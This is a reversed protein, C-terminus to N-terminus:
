ITEDAEFPKLKMEKDANKELQQVKLEAESLKGRCLTVLRSGEEYKALLTELPLDDAEMAEVIGELKKLAEEFPLQNAPNNGAAKSPSAMYAITSCFLPGTWLPNGRGSFCGPATACGLDVTLPNVKQGTDTQKQDANWLKRMTRPTFSHRRIAFPANASRKDVWILPELPLDVTSKPYAPTSNPQPNASVPTGLLSNLWSPVDAKALAEASLRILVSEAVSAGLTCLRHVWGYIVRAHQQSNEFTGFPYPRVEILASQRGRYLEGEGRGEGGPSPSNYPWHNPREAIASSQFDIM